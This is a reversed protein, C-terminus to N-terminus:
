RQRAPASALRLSPRVLPILAILAAGAFAAAAYCAPCHLAAPPCGCIPGYAALSASTMSAHALAGAAAATAAFLGALCAYGDSQRRPRM